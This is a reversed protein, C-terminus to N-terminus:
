NSAPHRKGTTGTQGTATVAPFSGGIIPTDPGAPLSGAVFQIEPAFGSGTKPGRRLGRRGAATLIPTRKEAESERRRDRLPNRFRLRHEGSDAEPEPPTFFEMRPTVGHQRQVIWGTFLRRDAHRPPRPRPERRRHCQTQTTPPTTLNEPIAAPFITHTKQLHRTKNQRVTAAPSKAGRSVRRRMSTETYYTRIM